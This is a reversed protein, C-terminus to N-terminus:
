NRLKDQVERMIVHVYKALEDPNHPLALSTVFKERRFRLYTLIHRFTHGDRDLFFHGAKDQPPARSPNPKFLEALRSKPDAVLIARRVAFKKGGVNINIIEELQRKSM